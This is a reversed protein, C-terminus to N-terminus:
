GSEKIPIRVDLTTGDGPTSRIDLSGEVLQVRERIGVLGWGKGQAARMANEVDMGVGDDSVNLTVRHENEFHLQVNAHAAQAHKAVNTLAEQTIRYLTTEIESPLRRRQGTVEVDVVFPFRASCEDAHAILAPVLGLEDLVSPRLRRTLQRLNNMVQQTLQRLEGVHKHVAKHGINHSNPLAQEVAALKWSIATMAQSAEDHLERAIHQREEEQALVTQHLLERRLREREAMEEALQQQAEARTQHLRDLQRQREIEFLRLARVTFIAIVSAMVSRFLQVPFHLTEMFLASNLVTSPPLPSRGVFLQGPVGYLLFALGVIFMDRSIQLQQHVLRCSQKFLGMAALVAGPVALVYRCWADAAAWVDADTGWVAWVLVMGGLFVALLAGRAIQWGRRNNELALLRLGFETLLVFSVILVLLRFGQSFLSPPDTKMLQFMEVWEHGGHITGFAALFPLTRAPPMASSRSSELWVAVGLIFFALGYLFYIEKLHSTFFACTADM